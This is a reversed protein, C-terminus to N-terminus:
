EEMGDTLLLIRSVSGDAKHQEAFARGQEYGGGLNTSGGPRIGDIAAEILGLQGGTPMPPVLPDVESEFVTLSLHNEPQMQRALDLTAEKVRVLKEGAMSGSRDLVVSLNLPRRHAAPPADGEAAILLRVTFPRGRPAKAYDLTSSTKM